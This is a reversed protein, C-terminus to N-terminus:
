WGKVLDGIDASSERRYLERVGELAWNTINKPTIIKQRDKRCLLFEVLIGHQAGLMALQLSNLLCENPVKM